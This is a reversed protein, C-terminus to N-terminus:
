TIMFYIYFLYCLSISTIAISLTFIDEIKESCQNILVNFQKIGLFKKGKVLFNNQKDFAM